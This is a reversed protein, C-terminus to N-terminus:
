TIAKILTVADTGVSDLLISPPAKLLSKLKFDPADILEHSSRSRTRHM